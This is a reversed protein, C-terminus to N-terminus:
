SVLTNVDLCFSPKSSYLDCQIQAFSSKWQINITTMEINFSTSMALGLEVMNKRQNLYIEELCVKALSSTSTSHIAANEKDKISTSKM